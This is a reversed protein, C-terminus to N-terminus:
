KASTLLDNMVAIEGTQSTVIAEALALADANEGDTLEDEAMAIAGEHHMIMQTLYLAGADAGSADQLQMMDDDSMMGGMGNDMDAMGNEAADWDRLWEQMTSIEPAQAAKIQTALDVIAPDIDTKALLDDSMEVAQEHHPIMLQAFTVDDSNFASAAPSSSSDAAPSAGACASLTLVTALAAVALFPARATIM